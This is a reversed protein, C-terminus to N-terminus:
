EQKSSKDVEKKLFDLINLINWLDKMKVDKPDCIESDDKIVEQCFWNIRDAISCALSGSIKIEQEIQDLKRNLFYVKEGILNVECSIFDETLFNNLAAVVPFKDNDNEHIILLKNLDKPYNFYDKESFWNFLKLSAELTTM